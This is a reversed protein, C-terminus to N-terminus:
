KAGVAQAMLELLHQFDRGTARSLAIECTRNVSACRGDLDRLQAAQSALASASLEPHLLGRDGAFGCCGWDDAVVVEHAIAEAIRHMSSTSGLRTSSCTPHLVIRPHRTLVTVNPLIQEAAFEVADVVRLQPLDSLLGELGETCSSADTVVPLRGGESARLIAETSRRKMEAYGRDFGKSKWPTGCCLSNIAEVTRIELDAQRCLSVFADQVGNGGPAPAFMTSLCSPFYVAVPRDTSLEPRRTGGAPLDPSWLPVNDKGAVKRAIRTATAPLAPPLAAAASLAAASGRTFGEWHRALSTWARQSAPGHQDSRLRRILDGTNINVPCLTQCMGDVACTQKAEYEYEQELQDALAADGAARARAVERRLVIRQRPTTTLARSPCVPECYGCEVCRDAEPEITPTSKLHRLHLDPDDTILVGPNLIGQPDLLHKVETMVEYLEDGYQRRVFPAMIRGTGHEAKLTGGNGLVLDVMEETFQRYRDLSAQQEFWENLLFHVNGDKAHGFIVSDQYEFREFLRTLETCTEGLRDVPVAVDELLATSGSPRAGAVAAYLGKRIRWLSGRVTPDSSLLGDNLGLSRLQGSTAELRHQLDPASHEQLEVLLAAHQDVDLARLQPPANADRQAVRLSTADLLEIAAFGAAALDPVAATATALDNLLLLGTANHTAVPVTRFTAEAIFALSGESGVVLHLLIDLPRSYDLFSNVGYGMTNKIAFQRQITAVSQPSGLVRDRLRSLGEHIRPELSRLREEADAQGTDLITGSALVLVASELTRYANSEVGCAMGSSNNAIVGGITCAAESAPDPGLKRAFRALRTNVARVTAGPQVRVRAGQDLVEISGFNRRTDVLVGDSVGQGSLSTGGSRFTLALGAEAATRVLTAIDGGNRAYVVAQPTLLYHSADHAYGLRDSARSAVQGPLAGELLALLDPDPNLDAPRRSM